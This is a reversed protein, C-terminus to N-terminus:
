YRNEDERLGAFGGTIRFLFYDFTNGSLNGMSIIRLIIEVAETKEEGYTKIMKNRVDPDPNGNKEAWHQAYILATYEEAPTDAPISGALLEKIEDQSLGSKLSQSAHFYSCYRCGNVETVVMMLRERFQFSIQDRMAKRILPRHTIMFRFDSFFQKPNKYVRRNFKKKAM